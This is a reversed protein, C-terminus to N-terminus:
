SASTARDVAAYEMQADVYGRCISIVEFENEGILRNLLEERGAAADWFWGAADKALPVPFPWHDEGVLLTRRDEGDPQLKHADRIVDAFDRRRQRAGADGPDGLVDRNASGVLAVLRAHDNQECAKAMAEVAAEPTEFREPGSDQAATAGVLLAFVLLIGENAKM